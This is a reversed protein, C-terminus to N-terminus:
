RRFTFAIPKLQGKALDFPEVSLLGGAAKPKRTSAVEIKRVLCLVCNDQNEQIFKVEGATLVIDLGAGQTGKVEVYKTENPKTCLLDYPKGKSVDKVHYGRNKFENEARYMAHLEVAKRIEANPQFGASKEIEGELVTRLSNQLKRKTEENTEPSFIDRYKGMTWHAKVANISQKPRGVRRAIEVDKLGQKDLELIEVIKEPQLKKM